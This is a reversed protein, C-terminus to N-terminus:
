MAKLPAQYCSKFLGRCAGAISISKFMIKKRENSLWKYKQLIEAQELYLNYTKTM